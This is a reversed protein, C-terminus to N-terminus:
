IFLRNLLHIQWLLNLLHVQNLISPNLNLLHLQKLISPNIPNRVLCSSPCYFLKKLFRKQRIDINYLVKEMYLSLKYHQKAVKDALQTSDFASLDEDESSSDSQLHRKKREDQKTKLISNSFINPDM